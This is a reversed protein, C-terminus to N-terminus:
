QENVQCHRNGAPDFAFTEAANGTVATIRDLPDYSYRRDLLPKDGREGATRQRALRGAPDYDYETALAEGQRQRLM